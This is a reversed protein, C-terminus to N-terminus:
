GRGPPDGGGRRRRAVPQPAGDVGSVLESTGRSDEHGRRLRPAKRRRLASPELLRYRGYGADLQVLSQDVLGSLTEVVSDPPLGEDACVRKAADATFGGNFISLRHLLLREEPQLLDHSWDITAALTRHRALASRGSSLNSLSLQDALRDRLDGLALTRVRVSALEIGLPIGDLRRCIEIM